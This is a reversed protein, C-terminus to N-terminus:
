HRIVSNFHLVRRAGPRGIAGYVHPISEVGGRNPLRRLVVRWVQRAQDGRGAGGAHSVMLVDVPVGDYLGAVPVTLQEELTTALPAQVPALLTLVNFVMSYTVTEVRACTFLM